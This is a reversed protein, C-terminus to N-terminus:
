ERDRRALALWDNPRDTMGVMELYADDLGAVETKVSGGQQRIHHLLANAVHVAGLADFGMPPCDSPSHHFSVAEVISVPLGWVGILYGGISGHGGHFILEEQDQVAFSGQDISTKLLKTYEDPNDCVMVLKGLDHLLGATFANDAQIRPLNEMLAIERALSGTEMSHDYLDQLITSSVVTDEFQKFIGITLVLARIIDLGLYVVAEAPKTVQRALGFFASNAIQLIKATMSIDKAIIAGVNALSSDPDSLSDVIRTYLEPLVPLTELSTIHRRLSEDHLLNKVMCAREIISVLRDPNVPKAIYQHALRVTQLSTELHADASFIIRVMSPYTNKVLTVLEIGDMDQMHLDCVIIDMDTSALLDLTERGSGVFSMEWADRMKWLIRRLSRQINPEDDVFLIRRKMM